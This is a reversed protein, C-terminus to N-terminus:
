EGRRIGWFARLHSVTAQPLCRYRAIEADSLGYDVLALLADRPAPGLADAVRGRRLPSLARPARSSFRPLVARAFLGEEPIPPM